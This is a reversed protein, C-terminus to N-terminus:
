TPFQRFPYCGLLVDPVSMGKFYKKKPLNVEIELTSESMPKHHLEFAHLISVVIDM